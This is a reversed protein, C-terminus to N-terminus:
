INDLIALLPYPVGEREKCIEDKSAITLVMQTVNITTTRGRVAAAVEVAAGVAAVSSSM